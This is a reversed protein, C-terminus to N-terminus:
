EFPAEMPDSSPASAVGGDSGEARSGDSLWDRIREGFEVGAKETVTDALGVMRSKDVVLRHQMDVTAVIDFEYELMDRQVPELGLKEVKMKGREDKTVEYAQKARLCAVVHIPATIISDVMAHHIPTVKRWAGFGDNGRSRAKEQDVLELAGGSGSWFASLSDIVIADFEAEAALEIAKAVHRPDFPASREMVSFDFEDSYLSASGNETDMVAVKGFASAIGLATYTKGSGSPGILAIRAKRGQRTAPVFAQDSM